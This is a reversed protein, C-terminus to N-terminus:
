GGIEQAILISIGREFSATNHDDVTKNLSLVINSETNQFSVAYTIASTTSPSDYYHYTAMDATSSADFSAYGMVTQAIASRRSGSVPAALKTSDRYFSWLTSHNANNNIEHFISATLLIKSNASKPTISLSLHSTSNGANSAIMIVENTGSQTFTTAGTEQQVVTQLVAGTIYPTGTGSANQINDVKLISTM